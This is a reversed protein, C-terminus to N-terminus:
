KEAREKWGEWYKEYKEPDGTVLKRYFQLSEARLELLLHDSNLQNIAMMTRYGVVGDVTLQAGFVNCARQAIKVAQTSGMNVGMDLIKSAISQPYTSALKMPLWFYDLYFNKARDETLSGIFSKDDSRCLGFAAATKLTIGYRSYEGTKPDDLLKEGENGMLFTFALDFNAM